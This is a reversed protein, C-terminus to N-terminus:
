LEYSNVWWHIMEPKGSAIDWLLSTSPSLVGGGVKGWVCWVYCVCDRLTSQAVQCATPTSWACSRLGWDLKRKPKAGIVIAHIKANVRRFEEWCLLKVLLYQAFITETWSTDNLLPLTFGSSTNTSKFDWMTDLSSYKGAINHRLMGCDKQSNPFVM